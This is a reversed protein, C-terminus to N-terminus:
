EIEVLSNIYVEINDYATSLDRGNANPTDPDLNNAIEWDDPMGDGDSDLPAAETNLVPWGGVDHPSDIIGFRSYQDGSSGHATYTGNKVDDIVRIDVADRKLSAGAHELVKDYAKQPTHTEVNDEHDHPTDIRMAIKDEEPVEGYSHFFQNWVGYTWNDHTVDPQGEFHNGAIYYKGWIGFMPQNPDTSKDISYIRTNARSQTAPGPKYYNNVLNINMGEGGYASNGGWNYIINNRYDVLSRKAIDTGGREGFRPNRSDHHAILNHHFSAKVGGFIGAYGHAGKDHASIRLSESIICWQMTFNENSYFSVCEDTSWSMSCHDIIIDKQEFGGLADAEVGKEDGMRFRMYRIIINETSVM